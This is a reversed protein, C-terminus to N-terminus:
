HGVVLIRGRVPKLALDNIEKSLEGNIIRYITDLMFYRFLLVYAQSNEFNLKM